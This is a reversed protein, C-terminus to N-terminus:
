PKQNQDQNEDRKRRLSDFMVSECRILNKDNLFSSTHFSIYTLGQEKFLFPFGIPPEFIFLLLMFFSM